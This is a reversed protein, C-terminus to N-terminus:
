QAALLIIIQIKKAIISRHISSILQKRIQLIEKAIPLNQFNLSILEVIKDCSYGRPKTM